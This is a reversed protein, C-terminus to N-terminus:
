NINEQSQSVKFLTKFFLEEYCCLNSTSTICKAFETKFLHMFILIFVEQSPPYIWDRGPRPCLLGQQTTRPYGTQCNLSGPTDLAGSSDGELAGTPLSVEPNM